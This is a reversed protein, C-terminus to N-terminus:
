NFLKIENFKVIELMKIKRYDQVLEIETYSEIKHGFKSAKCITDAM